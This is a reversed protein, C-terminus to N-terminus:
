QQNSPREAKLQDLTMPHAGEVALTQTAQQSTLTADRPVWSGTAARSKDATCHLLIKYRHGEQSLTVGWHTVSNLIINEESHLNWDALGTLYGDGFAIENSRVPVSSYMPAYVNIAWPNTNQQIEVGKVLETGFPAYNDNVLYPTASPCAHDQLWETEGPVHFGKSWGLDVVTDQSSGQSAPATTAVSNAASPPVNSGGGCGALAFGAVLPVVLTPIASIRIRRFGCIM